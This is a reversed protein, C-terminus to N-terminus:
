DNNVRIKISRNLFRGQPTDDSFKDVNTTTQIKIRGDTLNKIFRETKKARDSALTENYEATGLMDASGIITITSGVPLIKVLQKLLTQNEETLESSNYNFRLLAEFNKLSLEVIDKKIESIEVSKTDILESGEINLKSEVVFTNEDLKMRQKIPVSYKGPKDYILRETNVSVMANTNPSYNGYKIDLEVIGNFEAYNQLNVYKQLPADTVVIDVRQNEEIGEPYQQNSPFRPASLARFSIKNDPVGLEVLARKLEDTRAKSLDLGRPENQTGSTSGELMIRSNPNEKVISAIVPLIFKHYEVFDGKYKDPEVTSIRSYHPPIESSNKKFFVANVIPRTALLENGTELKSAESISTSFDMYPIPKPAEKIVIVEKIPEPEPEPEPEVVPIPEPSNQFSFRLGLDLRVAFTKWEVDKVINNFNYDFVLQQTFYNNNGIKLLNELGASIGLQMATSEITGSAMDRVTTRIGGQNIFTANDPSVVSETQSFTKQIPIGVRFGTLFRFPGNIFNDSLIYRFEPMFEIYSLKIDM